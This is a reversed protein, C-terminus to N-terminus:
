DISDLIKRADSIIEDFNRKPESNAYLVMEIDDAIRMLCSGVRKSSNMEAIKKLIEDPTFEPKLSKNGAILANRFLEFFKKYFENNKQSQEKELESLEYDFDINKPSSAGGVIAIQADEVNQRNSTEQRTSLGQKIFEDSKPRNVREGTNQAKGIFAAFVIPVAFIGIIILAAILFMKFLGSSKKESEPVDTGVSEAQIEESEGPPLVNIEIPKSSYTKGDPGKGTIAPIVLKGAKQPVLELLFQVQAVGVGNVWRQTQGTRTSAIDFGPIKTINPVSMERSGAGTLEQTVLVTLNVSDGFGIENKDVTTEITFSQAFIQGAALILFSVILFAKKIVSLIQMGSNAKRYKERKVKSVLFKGFLKM